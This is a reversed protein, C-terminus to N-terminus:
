WVPQLYQLGPLESRLEQVDQSQLNLSTRFSKLQTLGDLPRLGGNRPRVRVLWLIALNQMASLPEFSEVAIPKGGASLGFEVLGVLERAFELHVSERIGQVFLHRLMPLSRLYALGSLSPSDGLHLATLKPHESLVAISKVSSWKVFLAELRPNAIVADFLGQTAKTSFLATKVPLEPLLDCWTAVLNRQERASLGTQTCALNITESGDYEDPHRIPDPNQGLLERSPWYGYTLQHESLHM